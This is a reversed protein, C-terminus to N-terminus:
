ILEERVNFLLRTEVIHINSGPTFYGDSLQDEAQVAEDYTKHRSIIEYEGESYPAGTYRIEYPYRRHSTMTDERRM